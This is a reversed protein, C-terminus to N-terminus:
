GRTEAHVGNISFCLTLGSTVKIFGLDQKMTHVELAEDASFFDIM